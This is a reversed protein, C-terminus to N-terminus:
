KKPLRSEIPPSHASMLPQNPNNIAGAELSARPLRSGVCPILFMILDELSTFTRNDGEITLQWVTRGKNFLAETKIAPGAGNRHARFGHRELARRGSPARRRGRRGSRASRRGGTFKFSGDRQDFEVGENAFAASFAGGPQEDEGELRLRRGPASDSPRAGSKEVKLIPYYAEYAQPKSGNV